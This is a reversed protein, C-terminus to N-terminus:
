AEENEEVIKLDDFNLKKFESKIQKTDGKYFVLVNQHTKTVKRSEMNKAARIAATGISEVVIMENYLIMGANKFINKISGCFDYYGGNIKSRIDGVVVVAFRNQKLCQIAKSFANDLIKVFDEYNKQNSADNELDSYVELDFYPPCSFLLDQSEKEFYKDVNQGDDNIYNINNLGLRKINEINDEYQDKRLEIGCFNFGLISFVAGKRTDGAFCDFIKGKEPTFWLCLIEALVPDFLSTGSSYVSKKHKQLEEASVYNEIYEKFSIGLEKRKNTSKTYLSPFMIELSKTLTCERAM